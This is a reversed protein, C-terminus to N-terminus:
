KSEAQRIYPVVAESWGDIHTYAGYGIGNKASAVNVVYGIGNPASLAQHAQEDTVIVIRDYGRTDAGRKANETNTGGWPTARRLADALAFGRRPPVLAVQESFAYVDVDEAVERLMIALAVAAEFRTLDSKSSLAANMSGSHDVVLATKGPLKELSATARFMAQELEPEFDPAHKAAALFRFPLVRKFENANIAERILDRDVGAQQMNRLNRLLALGGLKNDLLLHTWAALKDTGASLLVEWTEPPPPTNDVLQKWMKEQAADKPKAHTLFLVDRLRIAGARDYKGIQYADFKTFAQALGRKVQKSIPTKGDKWYLALFETLEDARQIVRALTDGVIKGGHPAMARVLWLPVHRLYMKERAEIAIQAVTEPPLELALKAIRNAITEGSEYFESEWLLCAMVSRRLQAEKDIRHAPAGEHTRPAPTKNLVNTRAMTM